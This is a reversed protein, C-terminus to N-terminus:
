FLEVTVIATCTGVTSVAISEVGSCGDNVTTAALAAAEAAAVTPYCAEISSPTLTPPTDDIVTTYTVSASNGTLDTATVTITVECTGTTSASVIDIGCNDTAMTAAVAAAEALEVTQYCADITGATVVPPENDPTGDVTLSPNNNTITCAGVTYATIIIVDGDNASAYFTIEGDPNSMASFTPQLVGDIEYTIDEYFTNPKLGSITFAFFPAPICPQQTITGMPPLSDLVLPDEAVALYTQFPDILTSATRQNTPSSSLPGHPQWTTGDFMFVRAGPATQDFGPGELPDVWNLRINLSCTTTNLSDLDSIVWMANVVNSDQVCLYDGLPSFADRMEFAFIEPGGALLNVNTIGTYGGDIGLPVISQLTGNLPLVVRGANGLVIHATPGGGALSATSYPAAGKIDLKNDGLRFYAGGIGPSISFWTCQITGFSTSVNVTANVVRLSSLKLDPPNAGDSDLSCTTNAIVFRGNSSPSTLFNMTQIIGGYSKLLFGTFTIDNGHTLIGDYLELSGAITGGNCEVYGNDIVLVTSNSTNLPRRTPNGVYMIGQVEVLDGSFTGATGNFTLDAGSDIFYSCSNQTVVGGPVNNQVTLSSWVNVQGTSPWTSSGVRGITASHYVNFEGANVVINIGTATINDVTKLEAGGGQVFISGTGNMDVGISGIANDNLNLRANLTPIFTSNIVVQADNNFNWQGTGTLTGGSFILLGTQNFNKTGAGGFTRGNVVVQGECELKTGTGMNFSSTGGSALVFTGGAEVVLAGGPDTNTLTTNSSSNYTVTHGNQIIFRNNNSGTTATYSTGNGDDATNWFSPANWFGNGTSYYTTQGFSGFAMGLVAFILTFRSKFCAAKHSPFLVSPSM